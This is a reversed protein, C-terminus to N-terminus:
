SQKANKLDRLQTRDDNECISLIKQTKTIREALKGSTILDLTTRRNLVNALYQKAKM